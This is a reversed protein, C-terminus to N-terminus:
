RPAGTVVQLNWVASWDKVSRGRPTRIGIVAYQYRVGYRGDGADNVIRAQLARFGSNKYANLAASELTRGRGPATAPAERGIGPHFSIHVTIV